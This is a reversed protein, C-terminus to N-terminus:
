RPGPRAAGERERGSGCRVGLSGRRDSPFWFAGIVGLLTSAPERKSWRGHINMLERGPSLLHRIGTTDRYVTPAARARQGRSPGGRGERSRLLGAAGGVLPEALDGTDKAWPCLCGCLGASLRPSAQLGHSPCSPLHAPFSIAEGIM